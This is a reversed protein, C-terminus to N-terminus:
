IFSQFVIGLAESKITNRCGPVACRREDSPGPAPANAAPAARTPEIRARRRSNAGSPPQGAPYSELQETAGYGGSFLVETVQIAM